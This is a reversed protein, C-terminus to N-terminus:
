RKLDCRVCVFIAFGLTPMRGMTGARGCKAQRHERDVEMGIVCIKICPGGRADVQSQPEPQTLVEGAAVGRDVTRNSLVETDAGARQLRTSLRHVERPVTLSVTLARRRAMSVALLQRWDCEGGSRECHRSLRPCPHPPHRLSFPAPGNGNGGWFRPWRGGDFALGTFQGGGVVPLHAVAM